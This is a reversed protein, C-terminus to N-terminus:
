RVKNIGETVDYNENPKRCYIGFRNLQKYKSQLEPFGGFGMFIM